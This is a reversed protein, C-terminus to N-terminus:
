IIRKRGKQIRKSHISELASVVEEEGHLLEPKLTFISTPMVNLFRKNKTHFMQDLPQRAFNAEDPIAINPYLGSCLILKLLTLDRSSRSRINTETLLDEANHSIRFEM